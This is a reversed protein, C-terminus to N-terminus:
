KTPSESETNEEMWPPMKRKVTKEKKVMDVRDRWIM